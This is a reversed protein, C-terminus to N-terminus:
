ETELGDMLTEDWLDRESAVEQDQGVEAYACNMADLFEQRRMDAVVKEMLEQMTTGRREAMAKLTEHTSRTVKVTTTSVTRERRLRLGVDARPPELPTPHSQQSRVTSVNMEGLTKRPPKGLRSSPVSIPRGHDVKLLSGPPGGPRPSGIAIDSPISGALVPLTTDPIQARPWRKGRM